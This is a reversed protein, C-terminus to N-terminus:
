IMRPLTDLAARASIYRAANSVRARRLLVDGVRWELAAM